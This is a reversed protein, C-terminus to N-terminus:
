VSLPKLLNSAAKAGEDGRAPHEFLYDSERSVKASTSCHATPKRIGASGNSGKKQSADMLWTM